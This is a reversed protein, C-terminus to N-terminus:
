TENVEKGWLAPGLIATLLHGKKSSVYMCACVHVCMSFLFSVCQCMGMIESNHCKTKKKKKSMQM